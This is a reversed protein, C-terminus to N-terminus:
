EISKQLFARLASGVERIEGKNSSNSKSARVLAKQVGEEVNIDRVAKDSASKASKKGYYKDEDDEEEMEKEEEDHDESHEKEEEDHDESHEKEEEDDESMKEEDDDEDEGKEEEEEEDDAKMRYGMKEEEEDDEEAKDEEDDDEENAKRLLLKKLDAIEERLTAIESKESNVKRATAKAKALSKESDEEDEEMDKEEDEEEDMKEEDDEKDYGKGEMEMDEEMSFDFGQDQQALSKSIQDGISNLKETLAAQGEAFTLMVELSKQQFTAIRSIAKEIQTETSLQENGRESQSHSNRNEVGKEIASTSNGYNQEEAQSMSNVGKSVITFISEQNAPVDVVAIEQLDFETVNQIVKGDPLRKQGKSVIKGYISFARLAGQLILKWVKDAEPTGKAVQAKIWLGKQPVIKLELVKGVVEGTKHNYRLIPNMKYTDISKQFAEPDVVDNVRDVANTNAWGEIVRDYHNDIDDVERADFNPNDTGEIPQGISKSGYTFHAIEGQFTLDSVSM